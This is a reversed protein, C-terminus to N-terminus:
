KQVGTDPNIVNSDNAPPTIKIGSSDRVSPKVVPMSDLGSASETTDSGNNKGTGSSCSFVTVLFLFATM